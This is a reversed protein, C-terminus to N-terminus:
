PAEPFFTCTLFGRKLSSGVTTHLLEPFPSDLRPSGRISALQPFSHGDGSTKEGEHFWLSIKLLLDQLFCLAKIRSPQSGKLIRLLNDGSGTETATLFM